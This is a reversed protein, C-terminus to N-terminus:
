IIRIDGDLHVKTHDIGVEDALKFIFRLTEKRIALRFEEEKQKDIDEVQVDLDLHIM